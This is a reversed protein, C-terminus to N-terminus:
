EGAYNTFWAMNNNKDYYNFDCLYYERGKSDRFYYFTVPSSMETPYDTGLVNVVKNLDAGTESFTGKRSRVFVAEPDTQAHAMDTYYDALEDEKTRWKIDPLRVSGLHECNYWEESSDDVVYIDIGDLRNKLNQTQIATAAKIAADQGSKEDTAYIVLILDDTSDPYPEYSVGPKSCATDLDDKVNSVVKEMLSKMFTDSTGPVSGFSAGDINIDNMKSSVTYDFDQLKDHLTVVSGEDTENRSVITCKGYKHKAEKYLSKASRPHGCATISIIFLFSVLFFLTKKM